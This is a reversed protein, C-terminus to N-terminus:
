LSDTFKKLEDWYAPGAYDALGGHQGGPIFLSVKRVNTAAYLAEAHWLPVVTDDTGHVFFVPMRLQPVKSLNVFKDGPFLPVGIM